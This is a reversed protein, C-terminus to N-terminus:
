YLSNSDMFLSGSTDFTMGEPNEYNYGYVNATIETLANVDDVDSNPRFIDLMVASFVGTFLMVIGLLISQILYSYPHKVKFNPKINKQM